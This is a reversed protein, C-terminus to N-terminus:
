TQKRLPSSSLPTYISGTPKLQSRMVVVERAVFKESEFGIDILKQALEAGNRPTRLRGITLHPAFRRKEREFGLRALEQELSTYLQVLAEPLSGLGVWFVRPSRPSPFCGTGQVELEFTTTARASRKVAASVAEIMDAAVGGLFKLTLHVNSPKVWSVQADIRRLRNELDEMKQKISDPIEICVFTRILEKGEAAPPKPSKKKL